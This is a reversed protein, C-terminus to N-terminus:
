SLATGHANTPKFLETLRERIFAKVTNAENLTM